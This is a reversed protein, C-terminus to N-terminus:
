DVEVTEVDTSLTHPVGRDHRARHLYAYYYALGVIFLGVVIWIDKATQQTLAIVVGVLTVLPPLPLDAAFCVATAVGGTLLTAVWM